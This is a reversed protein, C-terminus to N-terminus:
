KASGIRYLHKKTRLLLTDGAIAPSAMMGNDLTNTTVLRFTKEAALVYIQGSQNACYLHGNAYIPSASFKGKLRESWYQKGTSADLCIAIGGDNVFFLLDGALVPSTKRPARKTLKWSVTGTLDGKMAPGTPIALLEPKPFGTCLFLHRGNTVPRAANSYGNYPLNWIEQGSDPDYGFASKAGCSVLQHSNGAKIVLPTSYAKRYDGDAKPKGEPTLDDWITSRDTRWITKGTKRDLAVLYQVDVGDMTLVLTDKWLFPSSGPGRYHRCPLDNRKWIVAGSGADLCATGYSGFHVYVHNAGVVPSPSAYCNLPNGLPEPSEPHFLPIDHLIAGTELSLCVAAMLTGEGNARTVWIKGGTIAPTSWAPDPLPTKWLINETESWTIPINKDQSPAIGDMTPGRFDPWEAAPSAVILLSALAPAFRRM